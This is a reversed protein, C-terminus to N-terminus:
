KFGCGDTLFPGCMRADVCRGRDTGDPTGSPGGDNATSMDAGGYEAESDRFGVSREGSSTSGALLVGSTTRTGHM